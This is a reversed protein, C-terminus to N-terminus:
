FMYTLKFRYALGDQEISYQTHEESGPDEYKEDFLNYISASAELNKFINQSFLTLNTIFFGDVDTGYVSKRESMYQEEIGGFIKEKLLPVIINLKALHKPSNSLIEGTTKDETEQFTYSIRCQLGSDWKNELEFELGKAEVEDINEFVLLDDAPDTTLTILDKAKYFFGGITGRLNNGIYQEYVLEYTEITEPDLDPNAKSSIEGDYYYLEYATPARFAQGYLFKFTTKELPSYILALRPNTSGGFTSYHDHRVGANLILNNLIEFEDQIYLAWLDSSREDDLYVEEDYNKQDQQFNDRYEVGSIIKHKELLRKTFQLEGGWWRGEASDKNTVIYSPDGSDAYDFVYEGYYYYYNYSVRAMVDVIDTFSHEYKLDLYAKKDITQTDPDNFVTGWSATPITKDRDVFGGELTFDLFLLRGFFSYYKDNDCDEAIGYNTSPNDFEKYYLQDDGKSGYYSGSILMELGNQFRNGYSLRGKYTDLSGAEGSMEMGKMDRGEKTIVNIVGFFANSGYLSSSPGRIVEIREILDVDLIFETGISASDYINDNIRHGNVLLLIRTNYDGPRSFGRIGLYHYNRDYTTYFGRISNLIDALTRYGYKKIEDATVISVSSPAETVKQEYKSASFVSPIEQFLLMEETYPASPPPNEDQSHALLPFLILVSAIVFKLFRSGQKSM